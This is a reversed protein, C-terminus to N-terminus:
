QSDEGNWQPVQKAKERRRRAQQLLAQLHRQKVGLREAIVCPRLKKVEYLELARDARDPNLRTM